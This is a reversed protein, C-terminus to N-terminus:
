TFAIAAAHARQREGLAAAAEGPEGAALDQADRLQPRLRDGRGHDGGEEEDEDEAEREAAADRRDVPDVVVDEDDGPRIV